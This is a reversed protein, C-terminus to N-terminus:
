KKMEDFRKELNSLRILIDKYKDKENIAKTTVKTKGNQIVWKIGRELYLLMFNTSDDFSFGICLGMTGGIVSVMAVLDYILYEENIAITPEMRLMFSAQHSPFINPYTQGEVKYQVKICPRKSINQRSELAVENFCEEEKYNRCIPLHKITEDLGKGLNFNPRCPYSCKTTINEVLALLNEENYPKRRCKRFESLYIYKEPHATMWALHSPHLITEYIKGDNYSGNICSFHSNICPISNNYTVLQMGIYNVKTHHDTTDNFAWLLQFDLNSKSGLLPAIRFGNIHNGLFPQDFIQEFHIIIGDIDNEGNKLKYQNRSGLVGFSITFDNEISWSRNDSHMIKTVITPSETTFEDYQSFSTRKINFKNIVDGRYIFYYGVFFFLFYKVRGIIKFYQSIQFKM